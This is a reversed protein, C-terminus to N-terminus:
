KREKDWISRELDKKIQLLENFQQIQEENLM